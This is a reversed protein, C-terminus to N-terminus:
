SKGTEVPVTGFTQCTKRVITDFIYVNGNLPAIRNTITLIAHSDALTDTVRRNIVFRSGDIMMPATFVLVAFVYRAVIEVVDATFEDNPCPSPRRIARKADSIIM